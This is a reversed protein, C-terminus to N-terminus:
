APAPFIHDLQQQLAADIARGVADLSHQLQVANRAGVIVSTVRLDRLCFALALQTATTGRARALEVLQQAQELQPRALYRGVFQNQKPDAARSDAPLEAGPLYKGTLVGQALPSYVIQGLGCRASTPLVATEIGREFLNYLPQNSIPAHLHERRCLEVVEAIRDAPWQSTGWYLVHGARILDHMARATELVPTEPDFRHCQYLDVYDTGLRKLSAHLSEHVHKRSLGRDNPDDSMPFFCKTALVLRHRPLDRVALGLAREGEGHNYVDATDFLNVGHDFAAAILKGTAQQDIANGITLWSGLGVVSVRLGSAGLHRYLM